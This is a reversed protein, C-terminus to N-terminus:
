TTAKPEYNKYLLDNWVQHMQKRQGFLYGQNRVKSNNSTITFNEIHGFHLQSLSNVAKLMLDKNSHTLTPEASCARRLWSQFALLLDQHNFTNSCVGQEHWRTCHVSHQNSCRNGWQLELVFLTYIWGSQLFKSEPKHFSFM